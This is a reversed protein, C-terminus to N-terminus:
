NEVIIPYMHTVNLELHMQEHVQNFCKDEDFDTSYEWQLFMVKDKIDFM